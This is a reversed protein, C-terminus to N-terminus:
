LVDMSVENVPYARALNSRKGVLKFRSPMKSGPVIEDRVGDRMCGTIWRGRAIDIPPNVAIQRGTM